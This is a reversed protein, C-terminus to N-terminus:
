CVTCPTATAITSKGRRWRSVSRACSMAPRSFAVRLRRRVAVEAIGLSAILGLDAPTLLRGAELVLDGPQIDEGAQRTNQGRKNDDGIRVTAGEREVREQMIVTDAGQPLVAGTMIRVATGAVVKGEFPAGALATGIVQLEKSGTEPLDDSCVAYGDM